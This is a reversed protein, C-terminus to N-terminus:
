YDMQQHPSLHIGMTSLDSADAGLACGIVVFLIGLGLAIAAVVLSIKTFLKM